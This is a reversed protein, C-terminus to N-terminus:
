SRKAGKRPTSLIRGAILDRVQTLSRQIVTPDQSAKALILSGQITVMWLTALESTDIRPRAARCAQDLLARFRGVANVFCLNAADRLAANTDAVEQVTTGALCSAVMDPTALVAIYFDMFGLARQRPDTVQQFPANSEMAAADADWQALCAGVLDDKTKFHHFFAGKTLGARACIDDVSTASYGNRRILETAVGIFKERTAAGRDLAM